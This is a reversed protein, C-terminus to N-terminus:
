HRSAQKHAPFKRDKYEMVEELWKIEATTVTKKIGKIKTPPHSAEEQAGPVEKGGQEADPHEDEPKRDEVARSM